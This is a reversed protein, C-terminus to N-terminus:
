DILNLKNYAQLLYNAFDPCLTSGIIKSSASNSTGLGTTASNTRGLIAGPRARNAGVGTAAGTNAGNVGDVGKELM